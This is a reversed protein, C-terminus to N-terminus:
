RTEGGGADVVVTEYPDSREATVVADPELPAGGGIMEDRAEKRLQKRDRDEAAIDGMVDYLVADILEEGREKHWDRPKRLDLEGYRQRGLELRQLVRCVVRTEDLNALELRRSIDRAIAQRQLIDNGTVRRTM